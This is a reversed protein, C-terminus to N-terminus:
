PGNESRLRHRKSRGPYCCCCGVITLSIQFYNRHFKTNKKYIGRRGILEVVDEEEDDFDVCTLLDKRFKLQFIKEKQLGPLFRREGIWRGVVRGGVDVVIATTATGIVVVV